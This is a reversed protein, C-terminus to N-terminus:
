DVCMCMSHAKTVLSLFKFKLRAKKELNRIERCVCNAIFFEANRVSGCTKNNVPNACDQFTRSFDKFALFGQFTRSNWSLTKFLGQIKAM